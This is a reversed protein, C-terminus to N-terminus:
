AKKSSVLLDKVGVDLHRAIEYLEQEPLRCPRATGSIATTIHQIEM